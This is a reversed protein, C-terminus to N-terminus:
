TEPFAEAVVVQQSSAQTDIAENALEDARKNERRPVHEISFSDFRSLLEVCTNYLPLLTESKVRYVKNIQNVVLLSDGQIHLHKVGLDLAHELGCLLASYEAFNSTKKGELVRRGWWLERRTDDNSLIVAGCGADGPNSRSGGDFQLVFRPHPTTQLPTQPEGQSVPTEELAPGGEPASYVRERLELLSSQVEALVGNLREVDRCLSDLAVRLEGAGDAHSAIAIGARPPPFSSPALRRGQLHLAQPPRSWVLLLVRGVAGRM